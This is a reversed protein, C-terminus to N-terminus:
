KVSWPQKNTESFKLNVDTKCFFFFLLIIEVIYVIWFIQMVFVKNCSSFPKAYDTHADIYSLSCAFSFPLFLNWTFMKIVGKLSYAAM